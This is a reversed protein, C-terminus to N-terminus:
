SHSKGEIGGYEEREQYKIGRHHIKGVEWPWKERSSAFMRPLLGIGRDMATMSPCCLRALLCFGVAERKERRGSRRLSFVFLVYKRIQVCIFFWCFFLWYQATNCVSRSSLIPRDIPCVASVWPSLVHKTLPFYYKFFFLVWVVRRFASSSVSFAFPTERSLRTMDGMRFSDDPLTRM